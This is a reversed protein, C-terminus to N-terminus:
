RMGGPQSWAEAAARRADDEDGGLLHELEHRVSERVKRPTSDVDLWIEHRAPLALAWVAGPEAFDPREGPYSRRFWRVTPRAIGLRRCYDDLAADAELRLRHSVSEASVFRYGVSPAGGRPARAGARAPAPSAPKPPSASPPVVRYTTRGRDLRVELREGPRLRRLRRLADAVAPPHRPELLTATYSTEYATM